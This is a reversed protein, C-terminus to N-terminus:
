DGVNMTRKSGSTGTGTGSSRTKSRSSANSEGTASTAAASAKRTLKGDRIVIREAAAVNKSTTRAVEAVLLRCASCADLHEQISRMEDRRANKTFFALVTNDDLCGHM